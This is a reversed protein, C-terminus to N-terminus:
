LRDAQLVTSVDDTVYVRHDFATPAAATCISESSWGVQQLAACARDPFLDVVASIHMGPTHRAQSLFMTAFKGAGIVGVRVPRGQQERSKLLAYLNM